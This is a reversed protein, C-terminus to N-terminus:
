RSRRAATTPSRLLAHRVVVVFIATLSALLVNLAIENPTKQRESGEVLAIMRDVFSQGPESPSGCSSGTPCCSPAAPSPAGTAAPSASSRRARAPSRRSTSRPSARSSTATAPSGSAPRSSWWTAPACRPARCTTPPCSPWTAPTALQDASGRVRRATTEQQLARLSAAQAKGRGEAVSEALTGFLVTLWLWVTVLWGLTSPDVISLVTTVVAGIEVVLMVPTAVCSARTSSASRGAAASLQRHLTCAPQRSLTSSVVPVGRDSRPRARARLDPRGRGARRRQPPGVFLPRHTPLTGASPPLQQQTAFRGALALVLVIPVFRGLLM